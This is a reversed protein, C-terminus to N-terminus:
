FALELTRLTTRLTQMPISHKHVDAPKPVHVRQQTVNQKAERKAYRRPSGTQTFDNINLRLGFPLLTVGAWATGAKRKCPRVTEGEGRLARRAGYSRFRKLRGHSRM